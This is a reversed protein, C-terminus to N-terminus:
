FHFETGFSLQYRVDIKNKGSNKPEIVSGGFLSIFRDKLIFFV